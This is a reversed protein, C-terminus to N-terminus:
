QMAALLSKRGLGMLLRPASIFPSFNERPIIDDRRGMERGIIEPGCALHLGDQVCVGHWVNHMVACSIREFM